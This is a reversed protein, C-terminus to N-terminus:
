NKFKRVLYSEAPKKWLKEIKVNNKLKPEFVKKRDPFYGLNRCPHKTRDVPPHKAKIILNDAVRKDFIEKLKKKEVSNFNEVIITRKVNSTNVTYGNQNMERDINIIGTFNKMNVVVNLDKNPIIQCNKKLNSLILYSARKKSRSILEHGSTNNGM